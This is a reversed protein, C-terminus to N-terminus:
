RSQGKSAAADLLTERLASRSTYVTGREDVDIPMGLDAIVSSLRRYPMDADKVLHWLPLRDTDIIKM